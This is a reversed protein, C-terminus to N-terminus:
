FFLTGKGEEEGRPSQTTTAIFSLSPNCGLLQGDFLKRELAKDGSRRDRRAVSTTKQQNPCLGKSSLSRTLANIMSVPIGGSSLLFLPIESKVM